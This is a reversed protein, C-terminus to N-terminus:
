AVPKEPANKLTETLYIWFKEVSAVNVKEDPSHPYRITPGFSIMDWNPYVAGLLGCELGAHIAKIEPIKGFRNNYVTQMTKLIASDPNPKWGPYEGDFEVKAGALEFISGMTHTLDKKASNVSSRLLCTVKVKDDETKVISLNTSTEVLGPMADSMRMVGNPCGYVARLMRNQTDTDMLYEPMSVPSASIQLGPETVSLEAKITNAFDLMCKEFTDKEAAPITVTAHGERPIANRMNGAELSSLRLGHKNVGHWILRTIIKCSNGRGLPIDLGSHGGKLGSINIKYALTDKEVSVKKLPFEFNGNIGGACGIYLEGEDESDLNLLIDGKLVNPKLNFAGTMGSEEDITFLAEVPGHVLDKSELVAMIAAVGMGNDAGLTTGNAKVWEGDILPEIPDKEFDHTKDSNKQPVMDLHAQLVIGARNEMGPTAPKRIMVNGVEDVWTELGAAEGFHKMFEIIKEEKKSPRPIQTLSYFNRWVAKPELNLIPNNM